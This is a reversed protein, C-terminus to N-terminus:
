CYHRPFNPHSAFPHDLPSATFSSEAASGQWVTNVGSQDPKTAGCVHYQDAVSIQQLEVHKLEKWTGPLVRVYAKNDSAVVGLTGDSGCGIDLMAGTAPSPILQWGSGNWWQIAGNADLAAVRAASGAAIRTMTGPQQVWQGGTFQYVNAGPGTGLGWMGGDSGVAIQKLIGSTTKQWADGRWRFSKQYFFDEVYMEHASVVQPEVIFGPVQPTREWTTYGSPRTPRAGADKTEFTLLLTGDPGIMVGSDYGAYPEFRIWSGSVLQYVVSGQGGYILNNPGVTIFWLNHNGSSPIPTWGSTGDFKLVTAGDAHLAWVSKDPAFCLWRLQQTGIAEWGGDSRRRYPQGPKTWSPGAIGWVTNADCVVVQSLTGGMKKWQNNTWQFVNDNVPYDTGWVSGDQGVSVHQMSPWPANEVPQQTLMYVAGASDVGWVNDHAGACMQTLTASPETRTIGNPLYLKAQNKAGDLSWLTGDSAVTAM